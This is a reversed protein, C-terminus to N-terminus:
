EKVTKITPKDDFYTKDPYLTDDMLQVGEVVVKKGKGYQYAGYDELVKEFRELNKGFNEDKSYLSEYEPFHKKLYSNFEKSQHSKDDYDFYMDLHIVDTGPDSYNLAKSTKGTGSKGSVYLINHKKNSGWTDMNSAMSGFGDPGIEYVDVKKGDQNMRSINNRTASAGNEITVAFGAHADNSMAIDKAVQETGPIKKVGWGLNYSGMFRPQDEITYVTVNRHGKKALYKQVETDIGPADGILIHANEKIYQDVKESIEKPLNKRYAFSSKNKLKSTGSIFVKRPSSGLPYPPGNRIGWRQGQIGHHMLFDSTKRRGFKWYRM